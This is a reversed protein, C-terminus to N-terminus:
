AGAVPGPQWAPSRLTRGRTLRILGSGDLNSYWIGFNPEEGVFVVMTGDPSWSAEFGLHPFEHAEGTEADIVFIRNPDDWDPPGYSVLLRTGDPSWHASFWRGPEDTLQVLGTGDLRQLFLFSDEGVATSFAVRTGDPSVVPDDSFRPLETMLRPDTGDPDIAWLGDRCAFTVVDGTPSWGPSREINGRTVKQPASGDPAVTKIFAWGISDVMGARGVINVAVRSGDPSWAPEDSSAGYRGQGEILVKGTGDLRRVWAYGMWSSYAILEGNERPVIETPTIPPGPEPPSVTGEECSSRDGGLECRDWGPGGDLDDLRLGGFLSDGGHGGSLSDEVADDHRVYGEACAKTPRARGGFLSDKGGNGELRNVALDGRLIDAHPSGILNEVDILQSTDAGVTAIGTDLNATVGVSSPGFDVTDAGDGGVFTDAGASTVLHDDGGLGCVVDDGDTGVLMDDGDTGVLMDDGDTGWTTCPLPQWEISQVSPYGYGTNFIQEVGQMDFLRQRDSGDAAAVWIGPYGNADAFLLRSGDPSWEPAIVSDNPTPADVLV